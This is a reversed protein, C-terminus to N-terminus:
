VLRVIEGVNKVLHDGECMTKSWANWQNSVGIFTCGIKRALEFDSQGDGIVVYQEVPINNEQNKIKMYNEYKGLGAGLVPDYGYLEKFYQAIGCCQAATELNKQATGSIVYMTHGLTHLTKLTPITEPFLSVTGASDRLITSFRFVFKKVEPDNQLQAVDLEALDSRGEHMLTHRVIEYRNLQRGEDAAFLSRAFTQKEPHGAFVRQWAKGWKFANSDYLVGDWDFILITTDSHLNNHVSM